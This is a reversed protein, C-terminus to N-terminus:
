SKKTTLWSMARKALASSTSLGCEGRTGTRRVTRRGNPRRQRLTWRRGLLRSGVARGMPQLGGGAAHGDM